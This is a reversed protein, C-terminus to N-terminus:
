LKLLKLWLPLSASMSSGALILGEEFQVSPCPYSLALYPIGGEQRSYQKKPFQNAMDNKPTKM